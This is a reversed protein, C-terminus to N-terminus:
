GGNKRVNCTIRNKEILKWDPDIINFNASVQEFRYERFIISQLFYTPVIPKNTLNKKKGNYQRANPTKHLNMKVMFHIIQGNLIPTKIYSM